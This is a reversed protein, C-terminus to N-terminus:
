QGPEYISWEGSGAENSAQVLWRYEGSTLLLGAPQISCTSNTCISATYSETFVIQANQSDYIVLQYRNATDVEDWTFTPSPQSIAGLPALLVAKEPPLLIPEGIQGFNSSLLSFDVINVIGDGNLDARYIEANPDAPGSYTQGFNSSLSNHDLLNVTNDPMVDGAALEPETLDIATNSDFNAIYRRTLHMAGTVLFQYSEGDILNVATLDIQAIGYSGSSHPTVSQWDPSEYRLSSGDMDWISLTIPVNHEREGSNDRGEFKVHVDTTAAPCEIFASDTASSASEYSGKYAKVYFAYNVGCTAGSFTYTTSGSGVTAILPAPSGTRYIRFGDLEGGPNNWGLAIQSETVPQAFFGTPSNPVVTFHWNGSWDSWGSSNSANVQWRYSGVPLQESGLNWSLNGTDTYRIYGGDTRDYEARYSTADASSHWQLTINDQHAFTSNNAPSNQTPSPPIDPECISTDTTWTLKIRADGGNERFLVRLEELGNLYQAPCVPDDNVGGRDAIGQGNLWIRGGDDHDFLFVYNGSSFHINASFDGVWDDGDMGCPADIGWNEDLTPGNVSEECNPSRTCNPDWWCDHNDYYKASWNNSSSSIDEVKASSASNNGVSKDGLDSDDNTFESCSGGYNDHQCLTAKVNSGVKISEIDDNGVPSFYSPNPYNGINLKKCNNGGYNSDSYIVVEDSGPNSCSSGGSPDIRFRRVSWSASSTNAARVGWYLDRNDWQSSFTETHSSEGKGTDVITTGGSDMNNTDKVRFTYGEFSCDEPAQWSFAVSRSTLTQGEAPSNLTPGSCPDGNNPVNTSTLNSGPSRTEGNGRRFTNDAHQITWGDVTFLRDTPLVWHVHASYPFQNETYGCSDSWTGARLVGLVQGRTVSQGVHVYLHDKDIHFYELTVGDAHTVKVNRSLLGVACIMSVTGDASALIRKDNTHTGIDLASAHWGIRYQWDGTPWPFKYEVTSVDASRIKLPDLHYKSRADIFSDPASQIFNSFQATGALAGTWNGQQKTLM